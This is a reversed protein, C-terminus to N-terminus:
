QTLKAARAAILRLEPKYIKGVNTMPMAELITVSKPRAPAEDVHMAAFALLEDESVKAGPLLTVFVVPLEGAYADPAGVAACLQVAPHAGIADEIVKPDINHGSRIILDKSRGSLHLRSQDDIWGLDGTALWGDHTFANVSDHPDVFGSFLNPSKFLVMGQEGAPVDRDSAGGQEDLAVIRLHVYPLRFGVCGAPAVIGPPTITSIGAMETMGYAEHVHLGFLQEFRQSLDPSLPAAGTRCYHLTSIDAGDVPVTALAALVTPVASLVTARYREVLRWYNKIVDRNRFLSPTPIVVEVGASLSALSGPLVGAVHFLPYGNITVDTSRVGQMQVCGWATFVQAGHSHRALKPAGTTGGTHFYAAIDTPAINRGSVLHDSPERKREATFDFVGAPLEHSEPLEPLDTADIENIPAVRLVATLSPVLARIRMAKSWFGTDGDAGWAILVKARGANMLSVLKEDSLLPNLPQVIGAAEGGWLALHYELCGPLLVAVADNPTLGLRHLLNATQHIGALLEAYSWRIPEQNPDASTLFTLATKDGFAHASNCFIEYTSRVSLAQDLPIAELRSVDDACSIPFLPEFPPKRKM